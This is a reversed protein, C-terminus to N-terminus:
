IELETLDYLIHNPLWIQGNSSFKYVGLMLNIHSYTKESM